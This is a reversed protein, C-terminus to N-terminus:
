PDLLWKGLLVIRRQGATLVLRGRSLSWTPHSSFFRELWQEERQQRKTCRKQSRIQDRTRFRQHDVTLLYEHGKCGSNWYMTPTGANYGHLEVWRFFVDLDAPRRLPHRGQAGVVSSGQFSRHALRQFPNAGLASTPVALLLFVLLLTAHRFRM